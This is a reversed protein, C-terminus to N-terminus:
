SMTLLEENENSALYDGSEEGEHNLIDLCLKRLKSMRIDIIKNINDNIRSERGPATNESNGM